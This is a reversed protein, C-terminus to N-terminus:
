RKTIHDSYEVVRGRESLRKVRQYFHNWHGYCSSLDRWSIGTRLVYMAACFVNYHSIKPQRGKWIYSSYITPLVNSNFFEKSVPYLRKEM